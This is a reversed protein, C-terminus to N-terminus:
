KTVRKLVIARERGQEDMWIKLDDGALEGSFAVTQGNITSKFTFTQGAAKGDTIPAREEARTFTGTLAADKVAIDLAIATGSKTEGQWKGTLKGQARAAAVVTLFLTAVSLLKKM